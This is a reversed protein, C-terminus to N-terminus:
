AFSLQFVPGCSAATRRDPHPQPRTAATSSAPRASSCKKV